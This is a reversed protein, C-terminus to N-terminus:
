IEKAILWRKFDERKLLFKLIMDTEKRSYEWLTLGKVARLYAFRQKEASFLCLYYSELLFSVQWDAGLVRLPTESMKGREAFVLAFRLYDSRSLPKM